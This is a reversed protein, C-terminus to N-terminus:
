QKRVSPDVSARLLMGFTAVIVVLEGGLVVLDGRRPGQSDTHSKDIGAENMGVGVAVIGLGVGLGVMGQKPTCAGLALMVAVVMAVGGRM